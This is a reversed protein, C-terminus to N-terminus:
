FKNNNILDFIILILLDSSFRLTISEKNYPIFRFSYDAQEGHLIKNRLYYMYYNSLVDVLEINIPTPPNLRTQITTLTNTRTIQSAWFNKKFDITEHAMELLRHDNYKTLFTSFEIERNNLKMRTIFKNELMAYWRTKSLVDSKTLTAAHASSLPFDSPNGRMINGMDELCQWEQSRASLVRYISNYSKWLKEFVDNDDDSCLSRILTTTAYLYKVGENTSKFIVLLKARNIKKLISTSAKPKLNVIDNKTYTREIDNNKDYCTISKIKPIVGNSISYYVYSKIFQLYIESKNNKFVDDFNPKQSRTGSITITNSSITLTDTYSRSFKYQLTHQETQIKLKGSLTVVIKFANRASNGM